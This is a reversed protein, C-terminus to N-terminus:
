DSGDFAVVAEIHRARWEDLTEDMFRETEIHPGSISQGSGKPQKTVTDSMHKVMAATLLIGIVTVIGLVTNLPTTNRTM